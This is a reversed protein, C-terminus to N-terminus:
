RSSCTESVSIWQCDHCSVAKWPCGWLLNVYRMSRVVVLNFFLKLLLAPCLCTMRIKIVLAPNASHRKIPFIPKGLSDSSFAPIAPRCKVKKLFEYKQMHNSRNIM